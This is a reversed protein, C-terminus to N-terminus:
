HWFPPPGDVEGTSQLQYIAGCIDREVPGPHVRELVFEGRHGLLLHGLALGKHEDLYRKALPTEDLYRETVLIEAWSRIVTSTTSSPQLGTYIHEVEDYWTIMWRGALTRRDRIETRSM